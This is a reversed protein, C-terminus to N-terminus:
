FTFDQEQKMRYGYRFIEALIFLFTGIALYLTHDISALEEILAYSNVSILVGCGAVYFGIYNQKAFFRSNNVNHIVLSIGVIIALFSLMEVCLLIATFYNGELMNQKMPAYADWLHNVANLSLFGIFLGTLLSLSKPKM